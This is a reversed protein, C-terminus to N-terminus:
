TQTLALLQALVDEQGEALAPRCKPCTVLDNQRTTRSRRRDAGCAAQAARPARLWHM